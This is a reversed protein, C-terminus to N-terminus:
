AKLMKRFLSLENLDRFASKPFILFRNNSVYLLFLRSTEELQIIRNWSINESDDDEPYKEICAHSIRYRKLKVGMPMFLYLVAPVLFVFIVPLLLLLFGFAAILYLFFHFGSIKGIFLSIALVAGGLLIDRRIHLRKEFHLKYAYFVDHWKLTYVLEIKNDM